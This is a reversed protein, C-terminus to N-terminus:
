LFTSHVHGCFMIAVSALDAGATAAPGDANWDRCCGAIARIFFEGNADKGEIAPAEPQAGLLPM